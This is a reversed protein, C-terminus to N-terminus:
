EIADLLSGPMRMGKNAPRDSGDFARLMPGYNEDLLARLTADRNVGLEKKILAFMTFMRVMNHFMFRHTWYENYGANVVEPWKERDERLQECSICDCQTLLYDRGQRQDRKEEIERYGMGDRASVLLARNTAHIAGSTSDCTALTLGAEEGMAIITAVAPGGAAALFHARVIGRHKLWRIRHALGVPDYSVPQARVAWGEGEDTFPYIKAVADCWIDLQEDNWGQGVGWWRFKTGKERLLRYRPLAREVNKLTIALGEDWHRKTLNGEPSLPPRDIIAGVNCNRAQWQIVDVPDIRKQHKAGVARVMGYKRISFGGSDGFVFADPRFQLSSNRFYYYTLLTHPYYGYTGKLEEDWWCRISLKQMPSSTKPKRGTHYRSAIGGPAWRTPREALAPLFKFDM